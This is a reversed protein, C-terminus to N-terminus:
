VPSGARVWRRSSADIIVNVGDDAAVNGSDYNFIGCDGNLDSFVFVTQFTLTVATHNRLDTYTSVRGVGSTGGQVSAIVSSLYAVTRKLRAIEVQAAYDTMKFPVRSIAGM